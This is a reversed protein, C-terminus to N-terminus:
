LQKWILDVEGELAKIRAGLDTEVVNVLDELDARVDDISTELNADTEKWKAGAGFMTLEMPLQGEFARIVTVIAVFLIVFILLAREGRLMLPSGLAVGPLHGRVGMLATTAIAVIALVLILPGLVSGRDMWSRLHGDGRM